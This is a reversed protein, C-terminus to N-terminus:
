QCKAWVEPTSALGGPAPSHDSRKASGQPWPFPQPLQLSVALLESVEVAGQGPGKRLTTFSFLWSRVGSGVNGGAVLQEEMQELFQQVPIGWSPAAGEALSWKQTM